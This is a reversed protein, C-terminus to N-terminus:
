EWRWWTEEHLPHGPAPTWTPPTGRPIALSAWCETPRQLKICAHPALSLLGRDYTVLVPIGGDQEVEAVIRCDDLDRKPHHPQLELARREIDKLQDADPVLEGFNKDIFSLHEELKAPDGICLAETRVTPAILPQCYLFLRVAAIIEDTLADDHPRAYNGRNGELFYSLINSDFALYRDTM